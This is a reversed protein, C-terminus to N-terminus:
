VRSLDTRALLGLSLLKFVCPVGAYLLSLMWLNKAGTGSDTSFGGMQLLPLMTIAALALSLKSVFSWMGFALAESGKHAKSLRRSFLAPLLTLDAGMALGSVVCITAFAALEGTSLGIAWIFSGIAVSMAALLVRKEGWIAAARSWGTASLAASVFFLLLFPGAYSPAGIRYEVFFLFLTSTIAAPAANVLALILLRRVLPDAWARQADRLSPTTQARAAGAWENRMLLVAIAAIVAFGTVFATFPQSVYSALAVPAVAAICIGALAGSERWAALNLFGNAGLRSATEVGHAYLTITLFSFATFLAALCVAFWLLPPLLPEVAFLCWLAATMVLAALAVLSGRRTRGVDALWGLIPDQIVDLLRLGGLVVGLAALGVGYEDVYFKPAQIYIPLGAAAIMGSFVAWPWLAGSRHQAIATTM